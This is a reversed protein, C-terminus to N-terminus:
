KLCVGKTHFRDIVFIAIAYFQVKPAYFLIAIYEVSRLCQCPPMVVVMDM